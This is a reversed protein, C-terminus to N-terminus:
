SKPWKPRLSMMQICEKIKRSLKAGIATFRVAKAFARGRRIKNEWVWEVRNKRIWNEADTRFFWNSSRSGPMTYHRREHKPGGPGFTERFYTRMNEAREHYIRAQGQAIEQEKFYKLWQAHFMDKKFKLTEMSDSKDCPYDMWATDPDDSGNLEPDSSSYDNQTPWPPDVAWPDIDEIM